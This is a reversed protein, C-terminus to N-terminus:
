LAGFRLVYHHASLGFAFLFTLPYFVNKELFLLYQMVKEIPSLVPAVIITTLYTFTVLSVFVTRGVVCTITM